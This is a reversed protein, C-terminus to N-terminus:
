LLQSQFNDPSQPAGWGRTPHDQIKSHLGAWARV